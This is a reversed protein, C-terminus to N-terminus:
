IDASNIFAGENSSPFHKLSEETVEGSTIIKDEPDSGTESM